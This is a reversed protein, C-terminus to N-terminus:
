RLIMEGEGMEGRGGGGRVKQISEWFHKIEKAISAAVRKLRQQQEKESRAHLCERESHQRVMSRSLQLFVTRMVRVCARVCVCVCM